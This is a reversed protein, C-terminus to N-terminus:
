KYLWVRLISILKDVDIPKTLYENAGAEICKQRDEKMAKATLAIIPLKSYKNNKRIERITTYGDMEPMMIDMLILDTDENQLLKDIGEKGNKGVIVKIGKDELIGSLAFVNRMDDDVVLIKKNKLSVEKKIITSITKDKKDNKSQDLEHLFLNIEDVLREISRSGKIIICEAHKKLEEEEEKLLNKETYIIVPIQQTNGDRLKALLDFGSMDRLKLDLIICDFIEKNLIDFVKKGSDVYSVAIGNKELAEAVFQTQAVNSDVMLVKKFSKAIVSSIKNFVDNIKDLSLPKQLYGIIGNKYNEEKDFENGSIIHIPIDKTEESLKLIEAVKWGDIDPLGIDLIIADPKMEKAKIIGNEGNKALLCQYGRGEALDSLIQSFNLDDEIILLKKHNVNVNQNSVSDKIVIGEEESNNTLNIAELQVKSSAEMKFETKYGSNIPLVVTFCSGKGVESTIHINGGLLQVLEKTIYLGLGTGGYKRSTTGDSQKFAEFIEQQKSAAIGIGTDSVHIAVTKDCDINMDAIEEENPSSMILRVSGKETFKFANSLLNNLIQQVRQADTTIFLPLDKDIEIHFEVGKKIAIQRFAKETNISLERLSVDEMNIILRGAEVKSIDLIDDILRLLDTGASYITSSFELQKATLPETDKKNALLQSLVLISNLPTRLEHSMNALFESKYKSALELAKAKDEIEARAKMLYDNKKNIDNKQLELNRTREILEDNTVRLEEQQAQLKEESEILARTQEELEENSQRLEEQQVQLEESQKLTKELLQKEKDSATVSNISIAISERIAQLFELQLDTFRYFSGIEMVCYVNGKLLCPIVVINQPVAEGLGSSINIYDAPINNIININKEIISQGIIGEGPRLDTSKNKQGPYAYSGTLRYVEDDNKLFIAGIQADLYRATFSIISNCLAGLNKENQIIENLETQGTKIWSFKKNETMIIQLKGMFKNFFKSMEGLEDKSDAKLRVELNAEGESIEKFTNTITKLPQVIFSTMKVTIFIAFLLGICSIFIIRYIIVKSEEQILPGYTNQEDIISLKINEAHRSIEPGIDKLQNILKNREKIVNAIENFKLVYTNRNQKLEEMFDNQETNYYSNELNTLYREMETLESNVVEILSLDNNELFKAANLRGLLLHNLIVGTDYSIATDGNAFANEMLSTLDSEMQPGVRLLIQYLENRQARYVIIEKFITNYNRTHEQIKEIEKERETNNLGEKLEYIFENMKQFREEFIIRQADDGNMLFNEYAIRSELLNAQIRGALLQDNAIKSYTEFNNHFWNLNILQVIITFILLLLLIGYGIFVKSGFKLDKIM